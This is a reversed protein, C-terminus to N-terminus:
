IISFNAVLYGVGFPHEYSLLEPKFNLDKIAGLLILLSRYGCEGAAELLKEDLSLIKEVERDKLLSVLLKDFKRGERAYGAPSNKSLRHSLDGSAVIAVRKSSQDLVKRIAQGLQFHLNRPLLSYSLPIVNLDKAPRALYFLPVLAGYDLKQESVLVLPLKTETAQRIKYALSLDNKFELRTSLDGFSEFDGKLIPSHNVVFAEDMMLGHPSIIIITDVKAQALEASLREFAKKTKKLKKLSDQGIAPILVPPHPVLSAFVLPM